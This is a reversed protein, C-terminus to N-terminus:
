RSVKIKRIYIRFLTNKLVVLCNNRKKYFKSIDNTNYIKSLLRDIVNIIKNENINFNEICVGYKEIFECQQVIPYIGLNQMEMLSSPWCDYFSYYILIKSNSADQLISDKTHNGYRILKLKYNIKLKKILKNLEKEKNIDAFKAYILIDTYREKWAKISFKDNPILCGHSVIYKKEINKIYKSHNILHNKVRESQVVYAFIKSIYNSWNVEFTNNMPFLFWM